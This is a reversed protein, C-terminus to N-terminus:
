IRVDFSLGFDAIKARKHKSLLVNRAALDRHVVARSELYDMGSNFTMTVNYIDLWTEGLAIHECWERLDEFTPPRSGLEKNLSPPDDVRYQELHQKISGECLEMVLQFPLSESQIGYMKVLNPHNLKKMIQTEKKFDESAKQFEEKSARKNEKLTKIAVPITNRLMGKAVTGFNGSGLEESVDVEGKKITWADGDYLLAMATRFNQDAAPHPVLCIDTLNTKFPGQHFM